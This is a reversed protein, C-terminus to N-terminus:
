IAACNFSKARDNWGVSSLDKYGPNYVQLEPGTCGENRPPTLHTHLPSFSSFPSSSPLPFRVRLAHM